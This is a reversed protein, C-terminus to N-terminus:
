EDSIMGKEVGCNKEFDRGGDWSFMWDMELGDM